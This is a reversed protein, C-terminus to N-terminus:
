EVLWGALREGVAGVRGAGLSLHGVESNGMQGAPLGVDLGSGSILTHPAQQWLRDWVATVANAIANDRTDERYGWGDLVILVTPKKANTTM